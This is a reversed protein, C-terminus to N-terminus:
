KISIFEDSDSSIKKIPYYNTEIKVKEWSFEKDKDGDGEYIKVIYNDNGDPLINYKMDTTLIGQKKKTKENFKEKLLKRHM